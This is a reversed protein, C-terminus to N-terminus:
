EVVIANHIELRPLKLQAAGDRFEFSLPQSGPELTIRSPKKEARVAIELPGVPPISDHIPDQVDAHPGATNVLNVVLRNGLRAVAVDVDSSGKVEVLPKPFLRRALENLFARSTESRQNLYGQSFSFYTAAIKGRGLPAISAAPQAPSNSANSAHLQGYPQARSELRVAQTQGKTPVLSGDHALFRVETQPTGELTVGIESQFLSAARPGVLLLNGGGQVYAV